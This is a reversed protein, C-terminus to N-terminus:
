FIQGVAVITCVLNGCSDWVCSVGVKFRAEFGQHLLRSVLFLNFRIAKVLAVHRLTMSDCANMMGVLLV